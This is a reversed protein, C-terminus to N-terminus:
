EDAHGNTYHTFFIKKLRMLCKYKQSKANESNTYGFSEAIEQMSKNELYYAQLLSRCPEGIKLMASEMMDFEANKKAHNDLDDNVDVVELNDVAPMFRSAQELRKLWLRRAVSYLYTKLQCNLAFEPNQVKNFLVIMTEQFIDRADDASGSNNMVLSQVMTYNDRYISEVVKRDNRALGQLLDKENPQNNM